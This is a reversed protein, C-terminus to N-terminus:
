NLSLFPVTVHLQLHLSVILVMRNRLLCTGTVSNLQSPLPTRNYANMLFLSLFALSHPMPIPRLCYPQLYFFHPCLLVSSPVVSSCSLFLCVLVSSCLSSVHCNKEPSPSSRRRHRSLKLLELAAARSYFPHPPTFSQPPPIYLRTFASATAFNSSLIARSLLLPQPRQSILPCSQGQSAPDASSIFSTRLLRLLNLFIM